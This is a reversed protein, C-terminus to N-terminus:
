LPFRCSLFLPYVGRLLIFTPLGSLLDIVTAARELAHVTKAQEFMAIKPEFGVQPMSTQIRKNQTQAARNAPLPRAVPQDGTWLTRGVTYFFLFSFFRGLGLFPSYLWLYIFLYISLGSLFHDSLCHSGFFIRM